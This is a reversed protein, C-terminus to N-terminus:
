NSANWSVQYIHLLVACIVDSLQTSASGRDGITELHQQASYYSNAAMLRLAEVESDSQSTDGQLRYAAGVALAAFYVHQHDKMVRSISSRALTELALPM